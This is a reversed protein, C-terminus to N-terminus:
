TILEASMEIVGNTPVAGVVLPPLVNWNPDLAM